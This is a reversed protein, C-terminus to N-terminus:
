SFYKMMRDAISFGSLVAGEIRPSTCWDGCAGFGISEDFLCDKGLTNIPSKTPWYKATKKIVLHEDMHMLKYFEESLLQAVQDSSLASFKESWEPSAILIIDNDGVIFCSALSSDVFLAHDFEIQNKDKLTLNVCWVSSYNINKIHTSLLNSPAILDYVSATAASFIVSDFQGLYGGDFDFLRWQQGNKEVDSVTTNLRVTLGKLLSDVLATMNPKVTYEPQNNVLSNIESSSIEVNWPTVESVLGDLVWRDVIQQFFPTSVTFSPTTSLADNFYLRGGV